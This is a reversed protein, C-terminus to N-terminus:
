RGWMYFPNFLSLRSGVFSIISQSIYGRDNRLEYTQHGYQHDVLTVDSSQYWLWSIKNHNHHVIM